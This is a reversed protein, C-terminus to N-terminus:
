GVRTPETKEYDFMGKVVKVNHSLTKSLRQTQQPKNLYSEFKTGYLTEPRLYKSMDTGSWSEVQNTHVIIFDDLTFGEKFRSKILARTKPTTSKYKLNAKQNLDQIIEQYPVGNEPIYMDRKKGKKVNKEKKVKKNTTLPKDPAQRPSTVQKDSAKDSQNERQQYKNWNLITIIRGRNTVKSTLFEMNEFRKLATRINRISVGDGCREKISKLSTVFQGPKVSFKKGDWDWSNEKYNARSLIAILVVKQQPSSNLWIPKNFLQRHL